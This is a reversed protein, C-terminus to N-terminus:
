GKKKSDFLAQLEERLEMLLHGMRNKGRGDPGSGWYSDWPADEVLYFGTTSILLKALPPNQCFKGRLARRMVMERRSDWDTQIPYSRTKGLTRALNASLSKRITERYTESLFKHAQFYHEVTPWVKDAEEFPASWFNSFEQYQASKSNFRIEEKM